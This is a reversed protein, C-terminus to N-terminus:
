PLPCAIQAAQCDQALVQRRRASEPTQRVAFLQLDVARQAQQLQMFAAAQEEALEARFEAAVPLNSGGYPNTQAAQELAHLAESPQQELLYIRAILLYRAFGQHSLRASNRLAEVAESFRRQRIYLLGLNSWGADTQKIRLAAHLEQEAQDFQGEDTATQAKIFHLTMDGAFIDEARKAAERSETRRGLLAYIASANALEQYQEARQRSSRFPLKEPSLLSQTRCDVPLKSESTNRQFVIASVDMYVPSWGKSECDAM